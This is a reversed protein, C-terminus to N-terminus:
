IWLRSGLRDAHMQMLWHSVPLTKTGILKTLYYKELLLRKTCKRPISLVYGKMLAKCSHLHLYADKLQM